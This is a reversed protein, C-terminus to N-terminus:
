KPFSEELLNLIKYAWELDEEADKCFCQEFWYIMEKAFSESTEIWLEGNAGDKYMWYSSEIVDINKRNAQQAIETVLCIVDHHGEIEQQYEERIFDSFPRNVLYKYGSPATQETPSCYIPKMHFWDCPATRKIIRIIKVTAEENGTEGFKLEKLREIVLDIPNCSKQIENEICKKINEFVEDQMHEPVFRMKNVIDKIDNM